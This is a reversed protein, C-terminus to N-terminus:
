ATIVQSRHPKGSMIGSDLILDKRHVNEGFFMFRNWQRLMANFHAPNSPVTQRNKRLYSVNYISWAGIITYFGM